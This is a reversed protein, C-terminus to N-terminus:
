PSQPANDDFLLVGAGAILVVALVIWFWGRLNESQGVPSSARADEIKAPVAAHATSGLVLGSAALAFLAKRIIM